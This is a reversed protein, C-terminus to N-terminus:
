YLHCENMYLANEKSNDDGCPLWSLVGLVKLQIVKLIRLDHKKTPLGEKMICKICWLIQYWTVKSM